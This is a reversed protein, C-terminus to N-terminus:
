KIPTVIAGSPQEVPKKEEVPKSPEATREISKGLTQLDKGMGEVTACSALSFIFPLSILIQIRKM